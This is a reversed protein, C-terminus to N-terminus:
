ENDSPFEVEFNRSEALLHANMATIGGIDADRKGLSFLAKTLFRSLQEASQPDKATSEVILSMGGSLILTGQYPLNPSGPDLYRESLAYISLASYLKFRADTWQIILRHSTLALKGAQTPATNIMPQGLPVFGLSLKLNEVIELLTENSVLRKQFLSTADSM